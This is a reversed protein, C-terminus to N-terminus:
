LEVKFNNRNKKQKKQKKKSKRNKKGIKSKQSEILPSVCLTVCFIQTSETLPLLTIASSLSPVFTHYIYMCVSVDGISAVARRAHGLFVSHLNMSKNSLYQLRSPPSMKDGPPVFHTVYLYVFM